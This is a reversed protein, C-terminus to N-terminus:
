DIGMKSLIISLQVLDRDELDAVGFHIDALAATAKDVLRRGADTIKAYTIRRDNPDGERQLLKRKQLGDITYTMTAPHTLTADKLDRLTIRGSAARQLRALIEYRTM